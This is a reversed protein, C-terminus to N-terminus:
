RQLQRIVAQVRAALNPDNQLNVTITNFRTITLDNRDVIELAQDCYNQAIQRINRPLRNTPRHCAIPPVEEVRMIRRIEAHASQRIPEIALLSRAYRQVEEDSVAQASAASGFLIPSQPSLTPVVGAFLALAAIASAILGQTTARSLPHCRISYKNYVM